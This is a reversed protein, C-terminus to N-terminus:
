MFRELLFQVYQSINMGQKDAQMLLYIFTLLGGVIPIWFFFACSKDTKNEINKVKQAGKVVAQKVNVKKM